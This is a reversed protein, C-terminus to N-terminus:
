NRTQKGQFVKMGISIYDGPDAKVSIVYYDLRKTKITIAAGDTFNHQNCASDFCDDLKIRINKGGTAYATLTYNDGEFINQFRFIMNTNNESVYYHYVGLSEFNAESDKTITINYSCKTSEHCEVTIYFKKELIQQKKVFIRTSYVGGISLQGRNHMCDQDENSFCITPSDVGQDNVVEIKIYDLIKDKGIMNIEYKQKTYADNARAEVSISKFPVDIVQIDQQKKLQIVNSQKNERIEIPDYSYIIKEELVSIM